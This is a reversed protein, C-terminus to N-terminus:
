YFLGGIFFSRGCEQPLTALSTPSGVWTRATKFLLRTHWAYAHTEDRVHLQWTVLTYVDQWMQSHTVDYMSVLWTVCAFSNHRVHALSHAMDFVCLLWAVCISVESCDVSWTNSLRLHFISRQVLHILWSLDHFKFSVLSSSRIYFSIKLLSRCYLRTNTCEPTDTDMTRHTAIHSEVWEGTHTVDDM